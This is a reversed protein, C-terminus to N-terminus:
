RNVRKEWGPPMAFNRWDEHLKRQEASLREIFQRRREATERAKAVQAEREAPSARLSILPDARYKLWDSKQDTTLAAEFKERLATRHRSIEGQFLTTGTSSSGDPGTRPGVVEGRALAALLLKEKAQPDLVRWNMRASSPINEVHGWGEHERQRFYEEYSLRPFVVPQPNAVPLIRQQRTRNILTVTQSVQDVAEVTWSSIALGKAVFGPEENVYVFAIPEGGVEGIARVEIRMGVEWEAERHLYATRMAAIEEATSPGQMQRPRAEPQAGAGQFLAFGLSLLRITRCTKM